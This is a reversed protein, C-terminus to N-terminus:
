PIPGLQRARTVAETRNAAAQSEAAPKTTSQTTMVTSRPRHAPTGPAPPTAAPHRRQQKAARRTNQQRANAPLDSVMPTMTHQGTEQGADGAQAPARPETKM